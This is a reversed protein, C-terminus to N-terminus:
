TNEKPKYFLKELLADLKSLLKGLNVLRFLGRRILDILSCVTFIVLAACISKLSLLYWPDAAFSKAFGKVLDDWILPHVHILYVALSSPALFTVFGRVGRNKPDIGACALFIAIGSIVILPSTYNVWRGFGKLKLFFAIGVSAFYVLVSLWVPPRFEMEEKLRSLWGGAVYMICLWFASYGGSLGFVSVDFIAPLFCMIAMVGALTLSLARVPLANIAKNMVPQFIVMGFYATMYWYQYKMIPFVANFWTGEVILEPKFVAYGATILLTYFVVELWIIIPRSIKFRSKRGVYGSILAYCNVACYAGIELFWAARYGPTGAKSYGLVMGQGLTHLMCIFFMSLMRLIEIGCHRQKTESM